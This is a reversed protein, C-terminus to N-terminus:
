SHFKKSNWKNCVAPMGDKLLLDKKTVTVSKSLKLLPNLAELSIPGSVNAIKHIVKDFSSLMIKDITLSYIIKV